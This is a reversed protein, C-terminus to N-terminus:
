RLQESALLAAFHQLTICLLALNHWDSMLLWVVLTTAVVKAVATCSCHPPRSEFNVDCDNQVPSVPM